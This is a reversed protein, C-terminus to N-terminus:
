LNKPVSSMFRIAPHISSSFCPIRLVLGGGEGWYGLTSSPSAAISILGGVSARSCAGGVSTSYTTTELVEGGATSSGAEVAGVLAVGQLRPSATGILRSSSGTVTVM